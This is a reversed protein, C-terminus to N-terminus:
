GRGEEPKEDAAFRRKWIGQETWFELPWVLANAALLSFIVTDELGGVSRFVIAMMGAGAGYLWRALGRKPSTVPDNILFVAGFLLAGSTLEYFVSDLAGFAGRPLLAAAVAAGGVFGGTLALSAENRVALFLLCTVLVLINTTGMAGPMNGLIIDMRDAVPAGGLQLARAASEAFPGEVRGLVPLPVFPATYRFVQQSFCLSVFAVGGAAPNFVNQGTGGFPQKVVLIAFAGALAVLAYDVCAPLLLPIILGTVISSYDDWYQHGGRLWNGALEAALCVAVSCVGLVTSRLGYFYFAMAYLPLLAIIVDAMRTQNNERMRIHPPNHSTM